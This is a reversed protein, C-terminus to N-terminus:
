RNPLAPPSDPRLRILFPCPQLLFCPAIHKWRRVAVTASTTRWGQIKMKMSPIAYRKSACRKCPANGSAHPWHSTARLLSARGPGKRQLRRLIQSSVDRVTSRPKLRCAAQGRLSQRKCAAIRGALAESRRAVRQGCISAQHVALANKAQGHPHHPYTQLAYPVAPPVGHPSGCWRRAVGGHTEFRGCCRM